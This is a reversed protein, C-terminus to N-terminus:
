LTYFGIRLANNMDLMGLDYYLQHGDIQSHRFVLQSMYNTESSDDAYEDFSM